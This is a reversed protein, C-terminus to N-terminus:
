GNEVALPYEFAQNTGVEVGIFKPQDQRRAKLITSEQNQFIPAKL